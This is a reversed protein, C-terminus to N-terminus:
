VNDFVMRFNPSSVIVTLSLRVIDASPVIRINRIETIRQSELLLSGGRERPANHVTTELAAHKPTRRKGRASLRVATKARSRLSFSRCDCGCFSHYVRGPGCWFLPLSCQFLRFLNGPSYLTGASGSTNQLLHSSLVLLRSEGPRLIRGQPM